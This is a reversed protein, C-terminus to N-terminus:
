SFIIEFHSQTCAFGQAVQWNSTLFLFARTEVLKRIIEFQLLWSGVVAIWLFVLRLRGVWFRRFFRGACCRGEGMLGWSHFSRRYRLMIKPLTAQPALRKRSWCAPVTRSKSISTGIFQFRIPATM